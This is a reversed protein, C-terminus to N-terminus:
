RTRESSRRVVLEVPNLCEKPPSTSGKLRGFLCTASQVGIEFPKQDVTTLKLGRALETNGYGVICYDRPNELGLKSLQDIVQEADYDTLAICAPRRSVWPTQLGIKAVDALEEVHVTAGADRLTALTSQLRDNVTSTGQVRFLVYDDYESALLHQAILRGGELDNSVFCDFKDAYSSDDVMVIQVGEQYLEDVWKARGPLTFRDVVCIIGDVRHELMREIEAWGHAAGSKAYAYVSLYDNDHAVSRVGRMIETFFSSTVDPLVLGIIGTRGRFVQAALKNSRYGLQEAAQMVRERTKPSIGLDNRDNLVISVTTQSVGAM